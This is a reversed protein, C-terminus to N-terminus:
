LLVKLPQCLAEFINSLVDKILDNINDSQCNKVISLILEKEILICSEIWTFIENAYRFFILNEILYYIFFFGLQNTLYVKM